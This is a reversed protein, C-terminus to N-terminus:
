YDQALSTPCGAPIIAHLDTWKTDDASTLTFFFTPRGQQNIMNTLEARSKNWYSCTGHLSSGFRTFWDGIKDDPM